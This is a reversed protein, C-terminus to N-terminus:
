MDIDRDNLMVDRLRQTKESKERELAFYETLQQHSLGSILGKPAQKLLNEM